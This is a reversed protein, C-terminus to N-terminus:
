HELAAATWPIAIIVLLICIETLAWRVEHAVSAHEVAAERKARDWPRPRRGSSM